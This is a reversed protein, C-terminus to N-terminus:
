KGTQPGPASLTSEAPAQASFPADLPGDGFFLATIVGVFLSIVLWGCLVGWTGLVIWHPLTMKRRKEAPSDVM